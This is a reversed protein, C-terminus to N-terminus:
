AKAVEEGRQRQLYGIFVKSVFIIVILQIFALAATYGISFQKFGRIYTYFSITETASGPGGRTLLYIIDFLKFADMFRILFGVVIVPALMPLTINMLTQWAGCGDVEAAEYLETPIAQLGALAILVIFPTWQWVDVIMVSPLATATQALWATGELLGFSLTEILYNLPGFKDDYIMDWMMGSVIPAIMVPILLLSTILSRGRRLRNLLLALGVGFLMELGVAGIIFIFTIKMANWFRVDHFLVDVFNQFWVFQPGGLSTLEYAHLSLVLEIIFPVITILFLLIVAPLVFLTPIGRGVRLGSIARNQKEKPSRPADKTSM